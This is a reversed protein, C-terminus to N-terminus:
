FENFNKLLDHLKREKRLLEFLNDRGVKDDHFYKRLVQYCGTFNLKGGAQIKKKVKARSLYSLIRHRWTPVSPFAPLSSHGDLTTLSRLGGKDYLDAWVKVQEPLIQLTDSLTSVPAFYKKSEWWQVEILFQIRQKTREDPAKQKLARLNGVSETVFLGVYEGADTNIELGKRGRRTNRVNKIPSENVDSV